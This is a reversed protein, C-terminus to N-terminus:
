QIVVIFYDMAALDISLATTNIFRVEITNLASARVSGIVMGANIAGGPSIMATAGVVVNPINFTLTLTAGANVPPLNTNVTVKLVNALVTGIAGLKFDGNVDLSAAPVATGIGMDGNKLIAVRTTNGGSRFLIASDTSFIIGSRIITSANGSLLGAERNNPNSFQFYAHDNDEMIVSAKSNFSGGSAANNIVHLPAFPNSTNVGLSRNPGMTFGGKIDVDGNSGIICQTVGAKNQFDWFSGANSTNRFQMRRDDFKIYATDSGNLISNLAIHQDLSNQNFIQLAAQPNTTGIGVRGNTTVTFANRRNHTSTGNGVSFLAPTYVQSFPIFSSTDNFAGLVMGDSFRSITHNGFAVSRQGEAITNFGAAFSFGGTANTRFGSAASVEGKAKTDYGTAFSYGGTSDKDWNVGDVYGSRFAAKDSYWMMRIGIGTLPPNGPIVPVTSASFLVSSDKVHLMAQPTTTNIGVKGVQAKVTIFIFLLITFSLFKKM